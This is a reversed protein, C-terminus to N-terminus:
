TTIKLFVYYHNKKVINKENIYKPFVKYKKILAKIFNKIVSSTGTTMLWIYKTKEDSQFYLKEFSSVFTFGKCNQINDDITKQVDDDIRFIQMTKNTKQSLIM